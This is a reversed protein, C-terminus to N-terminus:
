KDEVLAHFESVALDNWDTGKYVSKVVLKIWDCQRSRPLPVTKKNADDDFHISIEAGDSFQIVANEIRNNKRYLDQQQFNWQFGNSFEFGTIKQPTSFTMMVWEGVGGDPNREPQWSTSLKNDILNSAAFTYGQWNPLVSSATITTRQNPARSGSSPPRRDTATTDTGTGPPEKHARPAVAAPPPPTGVFTFIKGANGVVVFMSGTSVVDGGEIYAPRIAPNWATGDLSILIGESGIAVFRGDGFVANRLNLKGEVASWRSLDPGVSTLIAAGAPVLYRDNGYAARFFGADPGSWVSLGASRDTWNKGDTSTLLTGHHGTIVFKGNLFALGDLHNTTGANGATWTAADRSWEVAGLNGVAVFTRNGYAIGNLGPTTASTRETWTIGDSSTTIIAGLPTGERNTGVAVFFGAGYTVATYYNAASVRTRARTWTIGDPSSIFTGGHGVAVLHSGSWAIGTLGETVGSVQSSWRPGPGDPASKAAGESTSQSIYRTPASDRKAIVITLVAAVIMLLAISAVIAARSSRSRPAAKRKTQQAEGAEAAKGTTSQPRSQGPRQQVPSPSSPDSEELELETMVASSDRPTLPEGRKNRRAEAEAEALVAVISAHGAVEACLRATQHDNGETLVDAGDALLVRVVQAHGHLAAGMLPTMGNAAYRFDAPVGAALLREVHAVNGEAAAQMLVRGLGEDIIDQRASKSTNSPPANAGVDQTTHARLLTLMREDHRMEAISIATFTKGNSRAEPAVSAGRVLLLEAISHQQKEVALMLVTFGNENAFNVNAGAVILKEAVSVDGRQIAIILPTRGSRDLHDLNARHRALIEVAPLCTGSAILHLVTNGDDDVANPNAGADVLAQAITIQDQRIHEPERKTVKAMLDSTVTPLAAMLMTGKKDDFGTQDNVDVGADILASVVDVCGSTAATRLCSPGAPVGLKLLEKVATANGRLAVFFLMSRGRADESKPDAGRALLLQAVELHGAEIAALLPWRGRESDGANVDAGHALLSEVLGVLGLGAALHLLTMGGDLRLEVDIRGSDVLAIAVRTQGVNMARLLAAQDDLLPPDLRGGTSTLLLSDTGVGDPHLTFEPRDALNAKQDAYELVALRVDDHADVMRFLVSEIAQLKEGLADAIDRRGLRKQICMGALIASFASGLAAPSYHNLLHNLLINACSVHFGEDGVEVLATVFGRSHILPLLPESLLDGLYQKRGEHDVEAQLNGQLLTGFQVAAVWLCATFVERQTDAWARIFPRVESAGILSLLGCTALGEARANRDVEDDLAPQVGILLLAGGAKALNARLSALQAHRETTRAEDESALADTKPPGDKAFQEAALERDVQEIVSSWHLILPEIKARYAPTLAHPHLDDFDPVDTPGSAPYLLPPDGSWKIKTLSDGAQKAYVIKATVAMLLARERLGLQPDTQPDATM